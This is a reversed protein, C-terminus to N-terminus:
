RKLLALITDSQWLPYFATPINLLDSCFPTPSHIHMSGKACVIREAIQLRPILMSGAEPHLRKLLTSHCGILSPHSRAQDLQRAHSCTIGDDLHSTSCSRQQCIEGM